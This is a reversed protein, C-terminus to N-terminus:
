LGLVFGAITAMGLATWLAKELVSVRKTLAEIDERDEDRDQVLAELRTTVRELRVAIDQDM